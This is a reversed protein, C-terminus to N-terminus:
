LREGSGHFFDSDTRGHAGIKGASSEVEPREVQEMGARARDVDGDREVGLGFDALEAVFAGDLDVEGVFIVLLAVLRELLETGIRLRRQDVARELVEVEGPHADGRAGVRRAARAEAARGRERDREDVGDGLEEAIGHAAVLQDVQDAIQFRAQDVDGGADLVVEGGDVAAEGRQVEIRPAHHPVLDRQRHLLEGIVHQQM